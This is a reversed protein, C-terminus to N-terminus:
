LNRDYIKRIEDIENNFAQVVVPDFHHGSSEDIIELAKDFTYAKKYVRESTLADFVDAIAVIRAVLPIEEGRLKYPYGSGDFKEHHFKVIQEAVQYFDSEFMGFDNRLESFIETGITVHTKMIEWEENTLKGPKKLIDDPIGVKGIDHVSAHREIELITKRDMPHSLKEMKRVGEAVLTSYKVMRLIHDGTENDKRDVLKAFTTTMKALVVKLLYSRNLSGTIEYIIKSAFRLHEETFHNKFKSSVFIFGFVVNNSVLPIIMNSRIGEEVILKLSYSTPNNEFSKQVDNNIFGKHSNLSKRLSTNGLRVEYGAGLKLNDYNAVGYEAMICDRRYDVFAIGIRDIQITRNVSDFLMDLIDDMLYTQSVLDNFDEFTSQEKFLKEVTDYIEIEEKFMPKKPLIKNIDYDHEELQNYTKTIFKLDKRIVHLAMYGMIVILILATYILGNYIYIYQNRINEAFRFYVKHFEHIEESSRMYLEELRDVAEINRIIPVSFEQKMLSDMDSIEHKLIELRQKLERKEKSNLEYLILEYSEFELMESAQIFQELREEFIVKNKVYAESLVIFKGDDDISQKAINAFVRLQLENDNVYASLDDIIQENINLTNFAKTTQNNIAITFMVTMIVAAIILRGLTKFSNM